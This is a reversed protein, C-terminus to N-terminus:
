CGIAVVEVLCLCIGRIVVLLLVRLHRGDAVVKMSWFDCGCCGGCHRGCSIVKLLLCLRRGDDIAILLM